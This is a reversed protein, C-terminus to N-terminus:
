RYADIWSIDCENSGNLVASCPISVLINRKDIRKFKLPSSESAPTKSDPNAANPSGKSDVSEEAEVWSASSDDGGGKIYGSFKQGKGKIAFSELVPFGSMEVSLTSPMYNNAFILHASNIGRRHTVEVRAENKHCYITRIQDDFEGNRTAKCIVNKSELRAFASSAIMCAIVMILSAALVEKRCGVVWGLLSPRKIIQLPRKDM